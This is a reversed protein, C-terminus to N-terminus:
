AGGSGLRDARVYGVVGRTVSTRVYGFKTNRWAAGRGLGTEMGPTEDRTKSKGAYRSARGSVRTPQKALHVVTGHRDRRGRTDGSAM